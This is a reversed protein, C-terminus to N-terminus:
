RNLKAHYATRAQQITRAPLALAARLNNIEDLLMLLQAERREGGIFNNDIDITDAALIADREAQDRAVVGIGNWSVLRLDDIYQELAPWWGGHWDLGPPDTPKRYGAYRVADPAEVYV